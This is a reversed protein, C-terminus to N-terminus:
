PMEALRELEATAADLQAAHIEAIEERATADLSPQELLWQGLEVGACLHAVDGDAAFARSWASDAFLLAMPDLTSRTVAEWREAALSFQGEDELQQAEAQLADADFSPAAVTLRPALSLGLLVIAVFPLHRSRHASGSIMRSFSIM